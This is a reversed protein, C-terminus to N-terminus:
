RRFMRRLEYVQFDVNVPIEFSEGVCEEETEQPGEQVGGVAQLFLKQIRLAEIPDFGWAAEFSM